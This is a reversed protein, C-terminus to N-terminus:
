RYSPRCRHAKEEKVAVQQPTGAAIDVVRIQSPRQSPEPVLHMEEALVPLRLDVPDLDVIGLDPAQKGDVDPVRILAELDLGEGLHGRGLEVKIDLGVDRGDALDGGGRSSDIEGEGVMEDHTRRDEGAGVDGGEGCLDVAGGQLVGDFGV